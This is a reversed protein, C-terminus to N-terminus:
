DTDTVGDIALANNVDVVGSANASVFYVDYSATSGTSTIGNIRDGVSLLDSAGNFYGATDVVTTADNTTYVWEKPLNPNFNCSSQGLNTRIFAM